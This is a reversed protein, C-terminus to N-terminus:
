NCGGIQSNDLLHLSSYISSGDYSPRVHGAKLVCIKSGGELKLGHDDPSYLFFDEMLDIRSEANLSLAFYNGASSFATNDVVKKIYSNMLLAGEFKSDGKITEIKSTWFLVPPAFSSDPNHRHNPALVRDITSIDSFWVELYRKHQSSSNSNAAYNALKEIQSHAIRLATSDGQTSAALFISLGDITTNSVSNLSLATSNPRTTYISLSKIHLEVSSIEIAYIDTRGSQETRQSVDVSDICLVRKGNGDRDVTSDIEQQFQAFSLYSTNSIVNDCDSPVANSAARFQALALTPLFLCISAFAYFAKKIKNRINFRKM